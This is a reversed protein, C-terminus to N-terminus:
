SSKSTFKLISHQFVNTLFLSFEIAYLFLEELNVRQLLALNHSHGKVREIDHSGAFIFFLKSKTYKIQFNIWWIKFYKEFYKLLCYKIM